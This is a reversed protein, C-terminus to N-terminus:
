TSALPRTQNQVALHAALREFAESWGVEHGDRSATSAFGTQVFTMRTKEGVAELTVTVLTEQGRKGGEEWAHTLVLREPASVERYVGSVWHDAGDPARMGCRWAGGPRVDQQGDHITFGHPASWRSMIEGDTWAKWVLERPASFTRTMMIEKDSPLTVMRKADNRSLM